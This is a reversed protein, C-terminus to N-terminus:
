RAPLPVLFRGSPGAANAEGQEDLDEEGDIWKRLNEIWGPM